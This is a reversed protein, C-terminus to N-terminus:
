SLLITSETTLRTEFPAHSAAVGAAPAAIDAEYSQMVSANGLAQMHIIRRRIPQSM